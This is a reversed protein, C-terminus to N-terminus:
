PGVFQLRKGGTVAGSIGGASAFPGGFYDNYSDKSAVSATATTPQQRSNPLYRQGRLVDRDVLEKKDAAAAVTGSIGALWQAMSYDTSGVRFAAGTPNPWVNGSFTFGSAPVQVMDCTRQLATNQVVLLNTVTCSTCTFGHSEVAFVPEGPHQSWHDGILITCGEVVFGTLNGQLNCLIASFSTTSGNQKENSYHRNELDFICGSVRANSAGGGYITFAQSNSNGIWCRDFVRYYDTSQVGSEIHISGGVLTSNHTYVRPMFSRLSQPDAGPDNRSPSFNADLRCYGIQCRDVTIAAISESGVRCAHSFQLDWVNCGLLVVDSAENLFFGYTTNHDSTSNVIALGDIGTGGTPVSSEVAERMQHFNCNVISVNKGASGVGVGIPGSTLPYFPSEFNVNEICFGDVASLLNIVRSGGAPGTWNLTALAKGGYTGVRMNTKTVVNWDEAVAFTAGSLLLIGSNTTAVSIAKAWTQFPTTTSTGNANNDGTPSVYYYTRADAAVVVDDTDSASTGSSNTVTCTFRYTGATDFYCWAVTGQQNVTVVGEGQVLPLPSPFRIPNTIPSGSSFAVSWTIRCQHEGGSDGTSSIEVYAFVGCNASRTGATALVTVNITPAAM